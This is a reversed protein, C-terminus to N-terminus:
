GRDVAILVHIDGAAVVKKLESENLSKGEPKQPLVYYTTEKTDEVIKCRAGKKVPIGCDSLIKDPNALLKKKFDADLWAQAVIAAWKNEFDNEKQTM